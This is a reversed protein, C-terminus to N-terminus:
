RSTASRAASRANAGRPPCTGATRRRWVIVHEFHCTAAICTCTWPGVWTMSTGVNALRTPTDKTPHLERIKRKHMAEQPKSHIDGSVAGQRVRQYRETNIGTQQYKWEVRTSLSTDQDVLTLNKAMGNSSQFVSRRRGQNVGDVVAVEGRRYLRLM